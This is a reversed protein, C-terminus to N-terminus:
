IKCPAEHIHVPNKTILISSVDMINQDYIVLWVVGYRVYPIRIIENECVSGGWSCITRGVCYCQLTAFVFYGPNRINSEKLVYINSKQM